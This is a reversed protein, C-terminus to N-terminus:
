PRWCRSARTHSHRKGLRDSSPSARAASSDGSVELNRCVSVSGYEQLPMGIPAACWVSAFEIQEVDLSVFQRRKLDSSQFSQSVLQAM